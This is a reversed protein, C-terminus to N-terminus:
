RFYSKNQNLDMSVYERRDSPSKLGSECILDVPNTTLVCVRYEQGATLSSNYLVLGYEGIGDLTGNDKIDLQAPDLISSRTTQNGGEMFITINGPHENLGFLTLTLRVEKEDTGSLGFQQASAMETLGFLIAVAVGVILCFLIMIAM